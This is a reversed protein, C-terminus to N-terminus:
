VFIQSRSCSAADREVQRGAGIVLLKMGVEGAGAQGIQQEVVTLAAAQIYEGEGMTEVLGQGVKGTGRFQIRRERREIRGRTHAQSIGDCGDIAPSRREINGDAVKAPAPMVVNEEIIADAAADLQQAQSRLQGDLLVHHKWAPSGAPLEVDTM